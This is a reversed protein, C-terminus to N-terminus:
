IQEPVGLLDHICLIAVSTLTDPHEQSLFEMGTQMVRMELEEVNRGIESMVESGVSGTEKQRPRKGM